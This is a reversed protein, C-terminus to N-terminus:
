RVGCHCTGRPPAYQGCTQCPNPCKETLQKWAMQLGLLHGRTRLDWSYGIDYQECDFEMRPYAEDDHDGPRRGRAYRERKEKEKSLILGKSESAFLGWAHPNQIAEELRYVDEDYHLEVCEQFTLPARPVTEEGKCTQCLSDPDVDQTLAEVSCCTPCPVPNEDAWNKLWEEIRAQAREEFWQKGRPESSSARCKGGFYSIDCNALFPLGIQSSWEYVADGLDGGVFLHGRYLLYNIRNVGTKPQAWVLKIVPDPQDAGYTVFERVVHNKFWDAVLKDEYARLKKLDIPQNPSQIPM